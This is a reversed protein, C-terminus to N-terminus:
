KGPCFQTLLGALEGKLHNVSIFIPEFKDYM